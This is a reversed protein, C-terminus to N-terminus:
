SAAAVTILKAPVPRGLYYGQGQDCGLDILQQFAGATEIGEAVVRMDLAHALEIVSQVISADRSDAVMETIFSRDIKLEQVPIRRLFELSSYGTGFDDVALMVGIDHLGAIVEASRRPDQMVASETVELGLLESPVAAERLRSGVATCLDPDRLMQPSVNVAVPLTLGQELWQSAQRLAATLVTFTLQEALGNREALPVFADPLLLGQQPHQWRVLAEVGITDGSSLEIKPQYQLFLEDGDLARHLDQLLALRGLRKEHHEASYVSYGTSAAKAQYMAVDARRLLISPDDGHMPAVIVGFSAQVHLTLGVLHIPEALCDRLKHAVQAAGEATSLQPLLVVFEDGGLRAVTDVQRTAADLRSAVVRLIEDGVDHGLSDNIDKFGDLDALLLTLGHHDRRGTRLAQTLRDRLLRRNALGTLPDHLSQAVAAEEAERRAMAAVAVNALSQMFSIEENHFARHQASLAQLVARPGCSGGVPVSLSSPGSQEGAGTPALQGYVVPAGTRSAEEALTAPDDGTMLAGGDAATGGSVEARLRIAEDPDAAFLRAADTELVQVVLSTTEQFLEDLSAAELARQGLRAVSAQRIQAGRLETVDQLLVVLEGVRNNDRGSPIVTTQISLRSRGDLPRWQLEAFQRHGTSLATELPGWRPPLPDGQSDLLDFRPLLEAFREGTELRHGLLRRTTPSSQVVVLDADLVLGGLPLDDFSEDLTVLEALAGREEATRALGRRATVDVLTGSNGILAGAEDFLLNARLELWRYAGTRTRYRTEHHCADAGGEVVAMFMAVTAECEDPHVYDLFNTGLTEAVPFGTITTWARNLYTWNGSPDTQFVVVALDDLVQWEEGPPSAGRHGVPILEPSM